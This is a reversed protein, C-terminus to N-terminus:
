EGEIILPTVEKFEVDNVFWFKGTEPETFTLGQWPKQENSLYRGYAMTDLNTQGYFQVPRQVPTHGSYIHSLNPNFMRNKKYLKVERKFKNITHETLQQKWLSGFAYRGWCVTAGDETRLFAHRAFDDGALVDDTIEDHPFFEAHIVHFLGGSRKEVTIMHPLSIIKETVADRVLLAIDSQETAYATGWQGGNYFWWEGLPQDTFYCEMLQEHNGKAMHFWPEYLYEICKENEPGRDILDGASILRDTNKDFSVAALFKEVFSHCGHIDGCVFDRGKENIPLRKVHPMCLINPAPLRTRVPSM